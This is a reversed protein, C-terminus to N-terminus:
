SLNQTYLNQATHLATHLPEPSHTSTRHTSTRIQHGLCQFQVHAVTPQQLFNGLTLFGWVLNMFWGAGQPGTSARCVLLFLSPPCQTKAILVKSQRLNLSEELMTALQEAEKPGEGREKVVQQVHVTGRRLVARLQQDDDAMGEQPCSSPPTDM